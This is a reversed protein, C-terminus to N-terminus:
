NELATRKIIDYYTLIRKIFSVPETGRAYGYKAQSYYAKHRLLPLTRELSSWRNPDLGKSTAIIQADKVHGYGVNYSALALLMRDLGEVGPFREFLQALYKVGAQISQEPDLRNEIGMERATRLTVQMLGRVGTFSKAKPQFRSEQYIIAAILRWDFGSKESEEKITEEFEPLRSDLAKHFRKIELYDFIEVNAYYRRHLEDFTGDKQIRTLFRNIEELLESRGKDVAWGLSQKEDLPFALRIEPYYRRNLLAINSDAITIAIEKEAVLRILDETPIKKYLVMQIGYGEENLELIREHYSSGKRIHITKGKLDDLKKIETNDKHIIVQQQISMYEDSFDVSKEREPTITLSAAIFDGRGKHLAKYIRPWGPTKVKLEVGLSDAFAKSLEYEFGMPSERYVYYCHANNKTLLTIKGSRKINDLDKSGSCNLFLGAILLFLFILGIRKKM